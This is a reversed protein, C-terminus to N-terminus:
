FACLIVLMSTFSKVALVEEHCFTAMASAVGVLCDYKSWYMSVPFLSVVLVCEFMGRRKGPAPFMQPRPGGPGGPHMGPPAPAYMMGGAYPSGPMGGPRVLFGQPPPGYPRGMFTMM